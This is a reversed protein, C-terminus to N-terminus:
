MFLTKVKGVLWFSVYISKRYLIITTLKQNQIKSPYIYVKKLLYYYIVNSIDFMFLTRIFYNWDFGFVSM